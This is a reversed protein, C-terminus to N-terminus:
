EVDGLIAKAIDEGVDGLQEIYYDIIEQCREPQEVPLGNEKKWVTLAYVVDIREAILSTIESDIWDIDERASDGFSSL